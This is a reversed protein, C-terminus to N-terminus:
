CIDISESEALNEKITLSVVMEVDLSDLPGLHISFEGYVAASHHSIGFNHVLIKISVGSRSEKMYFKIVSVIILVM